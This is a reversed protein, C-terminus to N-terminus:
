STGQWVNGTGAVPPNLREDSERSPTPREPHWKCRRDGAADTCCARSSGDVESIAFVELDPALLDATIGQHHYSNVHLEGHEAV